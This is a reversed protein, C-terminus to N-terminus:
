VLRTLRVAMRQGVVEFEGWSLQLTDARLPLDESAPWVSRVTQGPALGVLDRVRFRDLPISVSLKVPLRSIMPWAPHQEMALGGLLASGAGDGLLAGAGAAAAKADIASVAGTVAAMAAGTAGDM